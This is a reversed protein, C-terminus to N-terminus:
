HQLFKNLEQLNTILFENKKKILEIMYKKIINDTSFIGNLFKYENVDILIEMVIVKIYFFNQKVFEKEASSFSNNIKNIIKSFKISNDETYKIIKKIYNKLDIANNNSNIINYLKEKVKQLNKQEKNYINLEIYNDYNIINSAFTNKFIREYFIEPYFIRNSKDINNKIFLTFL